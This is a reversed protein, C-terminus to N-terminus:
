RRGFQWLPDARQEYLNRYSVRAKYLWSELAQKVEEPKAHKLRFVRTQPLFFAKRQEELKRKEAELKAIEKNPM